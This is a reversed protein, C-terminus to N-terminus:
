VIYVMSKELKECTADNASFEVAALRRKGSGPITIFNKNQPMLKLVSHPFIMIGYGPTVMKSLKELMNKIANDSWEPLVEVSVIDFTKEFSDFTIGIPPFAGPICTTVSGIGPLIKWPAVEALHKERTIQLVSLSREENETLLSAPLTSVAIDHIDRYDRLIKEKNKGVPFLFFQILLLPLFIWRIRRLGSASSILVGTLLLASTCSFLLAYGPLTLTLVLGCAFAAAFFLYSNVKKNRALFAIISGALTFNVVWDLNTNIIGAHLTLLLAGSIYLFDIMKRKNASVFIFGAIIEVACLAIFFGAEESKWRCDLMFRVSEVSLFVGTLFLSLIATFSPKKPVTTM